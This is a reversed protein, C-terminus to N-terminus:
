QKIREQYNNTWKLESPRYVTIVIINKDDKAFVVHIPKKFDDKEYGLEEVARIIAGLVIGNSCGPCWVHPFKKGHRLFKHVRKQPIKM